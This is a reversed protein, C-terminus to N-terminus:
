KSPASSKRPVRVLHAFTTKSQTLSKTKEANLSRGETQAAAVIHNMENVLAARKERLQISNM